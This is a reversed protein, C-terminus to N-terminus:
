VREEYSRIIQLLEASLRDDLPEPKHERIIARARARATEAPAPKGAAEWEEWSQRAFLTPNWLRRMQRRTHREALFHRGPGVKEIVEVALDDDSCSLGQFFHVIHGFVEADMVMQEFAFTRASYLLGAGSMMDARGIYSAMGSLVNEVGAQWGSEKAGSAFTGISSPIGYWRAMRACAVQLLADEPGGCAAAGTRLDMVTPCAGYFAPAGPVLTQLAVMGALVEANSIVLTGAVTAPATACAMPMTVFGCPIGARAFVLAAELPERDYCLPSLSCQFSSILPRERLQASGGAVAEAMEVVGRAAAQTVATMCQIHKTTNELQAHIEHLSQTEPPCDRAAVPQWVFAIESLADALRTALVVDQRTSPRREGTELDLIECGCGDMSLYGHNGDIPLDMRPDRACLTFGRPAKAVAAEVMDGPFRVRMTDGDVLAGADHLASLVTESRMIVGTRELVTLTARHITRPMDPPLLPVNSEGSDGGATYSFSLPRRQIADRTKGSMTACPM